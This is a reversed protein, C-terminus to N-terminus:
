VPRRFCWWSPRPCTPNSGRSSRRARALCTRCKWRLSPRWAVFRVEGWSSPFITDLVAVAGAGPPPSPADHIVVCPRGGNGVSGIDGGPSLGRPAGFTGLEVAKAGDGQQQDDEVVPALAVVVRGPAAVVAQLLQEEEGALAGPAADIEEEDQRSKEDGPDEEVGALLGAEEGIEVQTSGSRIKEGKSSKEQKKGKYDGPRKEVGVGGPQLEAVRLEPIPEVQLVPVGREKRPRRGPAGGRTARPRFPATRDPPQGSRTKKPRGAGSSRIIASAIM